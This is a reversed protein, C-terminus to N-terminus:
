SLVMETKRKETKPLLTNCMDTWIIWKFIWSPLWKLGQMYIGWDWRKKIEGDTLARKSSRARHGWTDEPDDPDDYCNGEMIKYVRKKGVPQNSELNLLANPSNAVLEPYTAEQGREAM